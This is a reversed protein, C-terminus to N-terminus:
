PRIVRFHHPEGAFSCIGETVQQVPLDVCAVDASQYSLVNGSHSIMPRDSFPPSLRSSIASTHGHATVVVAVVAALTAVATPARWVPKPPEPSYWKKEYWEPNVDFPGM